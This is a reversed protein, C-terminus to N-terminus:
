RFHSGPHCIMRAPGGQASMGVDEQALAMAPGFAAGPRDDCEARRHHDRFHDTPEHEAGDREDGVSQVHAGVGTRQQKGCEGVAVGPLM